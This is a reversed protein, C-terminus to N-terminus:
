KMNMTHGCNPCEFNFSLRVSLLGSRDISVHEGEAESGRTHRNSANGGDPGTADVGESPMGSVEDRVADKREDM